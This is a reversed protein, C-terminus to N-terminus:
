ATEYLALISQNFNPVAFDCIKNYLFWKKRMKGLIFALYVFTLGTKIDTKFDGSPNFDGNGSPLKGAVPRIIKKIHRFSLPRSHIRWPNM